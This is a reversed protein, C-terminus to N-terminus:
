GNRRGRNASGAAARAPPLARMFQCSRAPGSTLSPAGVMPVASPPGSPPMIPPATPLIRPETSPTGGVGSAISLAILSM